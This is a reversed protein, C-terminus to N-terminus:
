NEKTLIDKRGLVRRNKTLIIQKPKKNFGAEKKSNLSVLFLNGLAKKYKRTNIQIQLSLYNFNITFKITPLNNLLSSDLM